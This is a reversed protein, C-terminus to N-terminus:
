YYFLYMVIPFTLWSSRFNAIFSFFYIIQQLRLCDPIPCITQIHCLLDIIQIFKTTEIFVQFERVSLQESVSFILRFCLFFTLFINFCFLIVPFLLLQFKTPACLFHLSSMNTRPKLLEIPPKDLSQFSFSISFM